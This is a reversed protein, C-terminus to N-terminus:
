AMVFMRLNCGYFTKCHQERIQFHTKEDKESHTSKEAGLNMVGGDAEPEMTGSPRVFIKCHWATPLDSDKRENVM